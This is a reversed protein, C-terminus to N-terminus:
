EEEDGLGIVFIWNIVFASVEVFDVVGEEDDLALMLPKFDVEVVIEVVSSRGFMM